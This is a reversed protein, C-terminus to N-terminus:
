FVLFLNECEQFFDCFRSIKGILAFLSFFFSIIIIIIIIFFIFFLFRPELLNPNVIM